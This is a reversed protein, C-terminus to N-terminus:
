PAGLRVAYPGVTRDPVPYDTVVIQANSDRALEARTHDNARPEVGNADSRTKVLFHQRVLARIRAPVPVDLTIVAASPDAPESDVFMARGQLSPAGARYLDRETQNGILAVLVRGKSKAITPWGDRLIAGRLTRRRGRVEDPTILRRGFTDRVLDDVREFAPPDWEAIDQEAAAVDVVMQVVPNSNTPLRKPEFFIVLPEHEPHAKSWRNVISLCSSLTPCTSRTDILLSHFVPFTPANFADIELSSVGQKSLQVDLPAHAYDAPEGPVLPRDPRVHYSNHTGLLRLDDLRASKGSGTGAGAASVGVATVIAAVAVLRTADRVKMHAPSLRM